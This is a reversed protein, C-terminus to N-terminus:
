QKWKIDSHAPHNWLSLTALTAFQSSVGDWAAHGQGPEKHEWAGTERTLCKSNTEPGTGPESSGWPWQLSFWATQSHWHRSPPSCTDFELPWHPMAFVAGQPLLRLDQPPTLLDAGKKMNSDSPDRHSHCHPPWTTWIWNPLTSPVM